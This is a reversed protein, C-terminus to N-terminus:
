NRPFKLWFNQATLVQQRLPTSEFRRYLKTASLRSLDTLQLYCFSLPSDARRFGADSNWGTRKRNAIGDVVLPSDVVITHSFTTVKRRVKNM